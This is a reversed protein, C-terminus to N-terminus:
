GSEQPGMHERPLLWDSPCRSAESCPFRPGGGGGARGESEVATSLVTVASPAWIDAPGDGRAHHGQLGLGVGWSARQLLILHSPGPVHTSPCLAGAGLLAGHRGGACLHSGRELQCSASARGDWAGRDCQFRLVVLLFPSVSLAGRMSHLLAATVLSDATFSAAWLSGQSYTEQPEVLAFFACSLPAPRPPRPHLWAWFTRSLPFHVNWM